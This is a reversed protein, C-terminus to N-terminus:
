SGPGLLHRILTQPALSLAHRDCRAHTRTDEGVYNWGAGRVVRACARVDGRERTYALRGRLLPRCAGSVSAGVWWALWKDRGRLSRTHACLQVIEM